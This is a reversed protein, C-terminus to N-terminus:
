RKDNKKGTHEGAQQEKTRGKRGEKPNNSYKQDAASVGFWSHYKPYCYAPMLKGTLSLLTVANM